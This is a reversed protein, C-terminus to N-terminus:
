GPHKDLWVELHWGHKTNVATGSLLSAWFAEVRSIQLQGLHFNVFVHHFRPDDILFLLKACHSVSPRNLAKAAVSLSLWLRVGGCGKNCPLALETALAQKSHRWMKVVTSCVSMVCDSMGRSQILGIENGRVVSRCSLQPLKKKIQALKHVHACPMIPVIVIFSFGWFVPGLLMAGPVAIDTQVGTMRDTWWKPQSQFHRSYPQAIHAFDYRVINQSFVEININQCYQPNFTSECFIFM